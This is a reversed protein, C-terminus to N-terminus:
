VDRMHLENQDLLCQDNSHFIASISVISLLFILYIRASFGRACLLIRILKATINKNDYMKYIICKVRM